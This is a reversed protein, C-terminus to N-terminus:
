SGVTTAVVGGAVTNDTAPDILVFGGTTRNDHFADCMVPETTRLRVRAIDNLELVDAAQHDFTRIDIRHDIQDLLAPVCQTAYKVLLRTGPRVPERTMWCITADLERVQAPASDPHCVLDGRSIDVNDAFRFVVSRSVGAETLPGTPGDIAVIKTYERSPLVVVDDGPRFVGGAVQGAYGRYDHFEDSRPRLVYQVPFRAPSDPEDAVHVNELHDFLVPGDYWPMHASPAVMNDGRLASIPIAAMGQVGLETLMATGEDRIDEFAQRAYGVIDMKNVVLAIHRVGFLSLLFAHRRTQETVGHRADVVVLAVDALSAACVMNRTYQIHGPSDAIIFKRRKGQLYRYAVDITIGQEREARLGDALLALNTEDLGLRRSTREVADLQDEAISKTDYLLRGILTSKGDDVSGATAFTLLDM